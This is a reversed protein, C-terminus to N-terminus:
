ATTWHSHCRPLSRATLLHLIDNPFGSLQPPKLPFPTTSSTTLERCANKLYFDLGQPSLANTRLSSSGRLGCVEPLQKTLVCLTQLSSQYCPIYECGRFAKASNTNVSSPLSSPCNNLAVYRRFSNPSEPYWALIM